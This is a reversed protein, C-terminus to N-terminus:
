KGLILRMGATFFDVVDGAIIKIKITEVDSAIDSIRKEHVNIRNNLYYAVYGGVGVGVGVVTVGVVVCKWNINCGRRPPPEPDDPDDPPERRPDRPSNRHDGVGDEREQDENDPRPDPERDDDPKAGAGDEVSPPAAMYRSVPFASCTISQRIEQYAGFYITSHLLILVGGKYNLTRGRRAAPRARVRVRM